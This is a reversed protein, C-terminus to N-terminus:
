FSLKKGVPGRGSRGATSTTAERTSASRTNKTPVSRNVSKKPKPSEGNEYEDVAEALIGNVFERGEEAEGEDTYIVKVYDSYATKGDTDEYERQPFKVFTGNSGKFLKMDRYELGEQLDQVTFFALLSNKDIRNMRTVKFRSAM